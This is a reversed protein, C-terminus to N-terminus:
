ILQEKRFVLKKKLHNIKIVPFATVPKAKPNATSVATLQDAVIELALQITLYNLLLTKAPKQQEKEWM